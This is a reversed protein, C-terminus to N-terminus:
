AFLALFRDVVSPEPEPESEVPEPKPIEIPDTLLVFQVATVNKNRKDVFSVPDFEPFDYDAMIDNMKSRMQSPLDSTAAYLQSVGSSLQNAGSSLETTGSAIQTIGSSLSSYSNSLTQVGQTYTVLGTHFVSYKNSLETLGPVLQKIQDLSGDEAFDAIANLTSAAQDLVGGDALMPELQAKITEPSVPSANYQDLAGKITFFATTLKTAAASASENGDAVTQLAGIEAESPINAYVTSTLFSLLTAMSSLGDLLLQLSGKLASLAGAMQRLGSANAALKDLQSFDAEALSNAIEVLADNIRASGDVVQGSNAALQALGNGFDNAGSALSAAGSSLQSAGNALEYTGSNLQSVASSLEGLDGELSSTDPMDIVSSYPLAAIQASQMEFDKVQASLKFSGAHGPLATFAVTQDKGSAALTADKAQIDTCQDGDLTFTIQLLYSDFFAQDVKDNKSTEVSIGLLGTAGALDEASVEKGDLTYTIDINWPLQANELTGQYFFPDQEINFSVKENDCSLEQTTSLNTVSSYAGYDSSACPAESVFRNVVYTERLSGDSSLIGYVM